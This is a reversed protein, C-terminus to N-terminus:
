LGGYKEARRRFAEEGGEMVQKVPERISVDDLSSRQLIKAHGEVADLVVILEADGLVPINANHTAAIIQRKGKERRLMAVIDEYVFRNDLDDEPQDLVLSRGEQALLLLLIATARQGISLRDLRRYEGEEVRLEVHLADEVLLIELEFLRMEDETVWRCLRDAMGATLGFKQQVEKSGQRVAEAVVLGDAADPFVLKKVAEETVGSGKLLASLRKRFEEKQGKFEVILRLRGTLREGVAKARDRRLANEEYRRDRYNSLLTTRKQRLQELEIEFRNLEEMLPGLGTKEETLRLLRDPDLTDTQLERKVRNLEEELPKVAEGWKGRLKAISAEANKLLEAAQQGLGSLSKLLSDLVAAAEQLITKQRSRGKQLDRIAEQLRDGMNRITEEWVDRMEQVVGSSRALYQSDARLDTADRLKQAVGQQEYTEIEHEINQLKQRYEDRKALRRTHDLVARTNTRLAEIAERVARARERAEEGILDDLLRLRYTESASVFYIERQGFITPAGTPGLLEQPPVQVLGNTDSEFVRPSEGLVREVRYRRVKEGNIVRELFVTVKGGSGLSNRVLDERYAEEAYPQITLGFRLTELLASKGVGRGGILVNLEDNWRVRVTGLFGSGEVEIGLIRNYAPRPAAGLCLRTEPDHLALRLAPLDFASLKLYTAQQIGEVMRTRVLEDASKSDSFEVLALQSLWKGDVVGTPELKRLEERPCYEMADPRLEELFTAAQKAKYTKLIGKQGTPHPPIFLCGLQERLRRLAEIVSKEPLIDRHSRDERRIPDLPNKDLSDIARNIAGPDADGPFIALVHLGHEGEQFSLEAGPLIAIGYEGAIDRILCFWEERIGNYDTIAAVRIGSVPLQQAYGKAVERRGKESKLDAGDPCRFSAVGPSHLHLDVRTWQAGSPERFVEDLSM